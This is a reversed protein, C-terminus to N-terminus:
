LIGTVFTSIGAINHLFKPVFVKIGFLKSIKVAFLAFIGLLISNVLFILSIFGFISHTTTIHDLSLDERQIYKATIGSIIFLAGLTQIIWHIRRKVKVTHFFSWSNTSYIALISEAM